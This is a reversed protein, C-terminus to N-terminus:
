QGQWAFPFFGEFVMDNLIRQWRTADLAAVDEDQMSRGASGWALIVDESCIGVTGPYQWALVKEPLISAYNSNSSRNKYQQVVKRNENRSGRNIINNDDNM